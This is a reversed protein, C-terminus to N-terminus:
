RPKVGPHCRISGPGPIGPGSIRARTPSVIRTWKLFRSLSNSRGCEICKWPTEYPAPESPEYTGPKEPGPAFLQGPTTVEHTGAGLGAILFALLLRM